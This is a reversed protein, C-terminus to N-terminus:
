SRRRLHNIFIVAIIGIAIWFVWSSTLTILFTQLDMVTFIIIGLNNAVHRVHVYTIDRLVVMMLIMEFGFALVALIEASNIGYVNIHYAAFIFPMALTVPILSVALNRTKWYILSTIMGPIGVFFFINEYIAGWMALVIDGGLGTELVQLAPTAIRYDTQSLIFFTLLFVAPYLTMYLYKPPIGLLNEKALTIGYDLDTRRNIILAFGVMLSGVIGLLMWSLSVNIDNTNFYTFIMIALGGLVLYVELVLRDTLKDLMSSDSM